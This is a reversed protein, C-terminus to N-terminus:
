NLKLYWDVPFIDTLSNHGHTSTPRTPYPFTILLLPLEPLESSPMTVRASFQSMKTRFELRFYVFTRTAFSVKYCSTPFERRDVFAQSQKCRRDASMGADIKRFRMIIHHVSHTWFIWQIAYNVSCYKLGFYSSLAFSYRSIEEAGTSFKACFGKDFWTHLCGGLLM